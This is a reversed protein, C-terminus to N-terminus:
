KPHKQRNLLIKTPYSIKLRQEKREDANLGAKDADSEVKNFPTHCRPLLIYSVRLQRIRQLERNAIEIEM